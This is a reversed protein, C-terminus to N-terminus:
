RKLLPKGLSTFPPPPSSPTIVGPPTIEKFGVDNDTLKM